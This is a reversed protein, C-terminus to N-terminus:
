FRFRIKGDGQCEWYMRMMLADAFDPSRGILQKVVRKPTVQAKQEKDINHMKHAQLEQSIEDIHKNDQISIKGKKVAESLKYYLQDKLMKYNERNFVKANAIFGRCGILLDFVGQGIGTKDIIVNSIRVKYDSMLTKIIKVTNGTDSTDMQLIKFCHMKWWVTIVTTDSGDGAVDATIYTDGEKYGDKISEKYEKPENYFMQNIDDYGFLSFDSDDYDWDGLVLRNYVPLGLSEPTLSSLYDLSNYRNDHPLAQIFRRHRPLNGEKDPKYFTQYLWNKTPNSVILLKPKLNYVSLKYRLRTKLIRYVDETIEGAEDIVAGTLELSGLKIFDPDSPYKFLDMLIVESGNNFTIVNSQKNYDIIDEIRWESIIDMFTKITTRKLNQLRARGILYRTKPYKLCSLIVWYCALRSKGSSISGGFLLETTKSDELYEYAKFQKTTPEFEIERSKNEQNKTMMM